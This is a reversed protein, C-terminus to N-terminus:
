IPWAKLAYNFLIRQRDAINNPNWDNYKSVMKTTEFGCGQYVIKKAEFGGSGIKSNDVPKLLALNGIRNAYAEVDEESFQSWNGNPNVPLIHELNISSPNESLIHSPNREGKYAREIARLYYRAFKPKSVTASLFQDRFISDNPTVKSLAKIIHQSQTLEGQWIRIATESIPGEVARSTPRSASAITLRVSMSIAYHFLKECEIPTLKLTAVLLLPKLPQIDFLLIPGIHDKIEHPYGKWFPSETNNIATYNLSLKELRSLVDFSSSEGKAIQQVGKYINKKEIFKNTAMLVHRIYGMIIDDEDTQELTAKMAAWSHQAADINSGSRSFLYNKILDAQSVKLGRDNLTEFMRFANLENPVKIMITKTNFQLYKIWSEFITQDESDAVLKAVRTIYKKCEDYAKLLKKHSPRQRVFGEGPVGNIILSSFVVADSNNLEMKPRDITELGLSVLFQDLFRSVKSSEPCLHKIASLLLSTTALRQQGDVVELLNENRNIVVLSGIFYTPEDQSIALSIDQLYTEVYDEDWSYDRQYRPVKLEYRKLVEAIGLQEFNIDDSNSM